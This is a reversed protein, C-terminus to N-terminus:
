KRPSGISSRILCPVLRNGASAPNAITCELLDVAEEALRAFNQNVTIEGPYERSDFRWVVPLARPFRRHLGSALPALNEGALIFSDCDPLDLTEVRADWASNVVSPEIGSRELTRRYAQLRLQSCLTEASSSIFLPRRRGVAVLMEMINEIAGQEDSIVHFVGGIAESYDNVTVMPTPSTASWSRAIRNIPSLSVAGTIYLDDLLSIDNTPVIFNRFGRRHLEIALHQVLILSYQDPVFGAVKWIIAAVRRGRQAQYHKCGALDLIKRRTEQSIRSSGSLARSVTSHSCGAIRALETMTIKKM